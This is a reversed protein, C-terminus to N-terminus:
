RDAIEFPIERVVPKGSALAAEVRLVYPGPHLGALPVTGDLTAEHGGGAAARGPLDLTSPTAKDGGDIRITVRV